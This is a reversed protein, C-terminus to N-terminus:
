NIKTFSVQQGDEFELIMTDDIIMYIKINQYKPNNETFIISDILINFTSNENEALGTIGGQWEYNFAKGNEDEGYITFFSLGTGRKSDFTRIRFDTIINKHEHRWTGYIEELEM